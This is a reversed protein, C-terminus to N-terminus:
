TKHIYVFMAIQRSNSFVSFPWWYPYRIFLRPRPLLFINNTKRNEHKNVNWLCLCRCSTVRGLSIAVSEVKKVPKQNTKIILGSKRSSSDKQNRKIRHLIWRSVRHQSQASETSVRHQSQALITSFWPSFWYPIVDRWTVDRWTVVNSMIHCHSIWFPRVM